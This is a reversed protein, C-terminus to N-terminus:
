SPKHLQLSVSDSQKLVYIASFNATFSRYLTVICEYADAGLSPAGAILSSFLVFDVAAACAMSVWVHADVEAFATLACGLRPAHRMSPVGTLWSAHAAPSAAKVRAHSPTDCTSATTRAVLAGTLLVAEACRAVHSAAAPCGAGEAHSAAGPCGAEAARWDAAGSCGAGEAHSAAGSCGAGAARWDAEAESCGAGAAQASAAEVSPM